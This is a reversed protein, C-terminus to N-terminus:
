TVMFYRTATEKNIQSQFGIGSSVLCFNKARFDFVFFIAIKVLHSHDIAIRDCFLDGIM